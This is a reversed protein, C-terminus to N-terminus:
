GVMAMTFILMYAFALTAMAGIAGFIFVNGEIPNVTATMTKDGINSINKLENKLAAPRKGHARALVVLLPCAM